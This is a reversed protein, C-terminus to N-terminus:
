HEIVVDANLSYRVENTSTPESREKAEACAADLRAWLRRRDDPVLPKLTQFLGNIEKVRGWLDRFNANPGRVRAHLAEIEGHIREANGAANPNVNSGSQAM